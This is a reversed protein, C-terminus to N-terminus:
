HIVDYLDSCGTEVAGRKSSDQAGGPDGRVADRAHPAGSYPSNTQVSINNTNTNTNINITNTNTTNTTTNTNTHASTWIQQMEVNVYSDAVNRM